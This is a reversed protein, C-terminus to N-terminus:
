TCKRGYNPLKRNGLLFTPAM